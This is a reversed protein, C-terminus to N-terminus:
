EQGLSPNGSRFYPSILFFYSSGHESFFFFFTWYSKLKQTGKWFLQKYFLYSHLSTVLLVDCRKSMCCIFLLLTFLSILFESKKKRQKNTCKNTQLLLKRVHGLTNKPLSSNLSHIAHALYNSFGEGTLMKLPLASNKRVYTSLCLNISNAPHFTKKIKLLPTLNNESIRQIWRIEKFYITSMLFDKSCLPAKLIDALVHQLPLTLLSVFYIFFLGKM